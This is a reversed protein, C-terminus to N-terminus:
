RGLAKRVAAALHEAQFPKLVFGAMGEDLLAQAAGEAAGGTSLIARLAPNLGRLARFCERGGMEPMMMDIIVLDLTPALRRYLAVAERGDAATVVVYGMAILMRALVSRVLEEDDVVMIRVPSAAGPPPSASPDDESDDAERRARTPSSTPVIADGPAPTEEPTPDPAKAPAVEAALPLFIRFTAGAGVASEVEVWGGHHRVIGYVMALGMGTGKGRPKTTFFPEFIRSHLDPPIGIGTDRVITLVYRGPEAWAPRPGDTDTRQIIETSFTMRGGDPMADRANMALNLIVQEMQAPDGLIRAPDASPRMELQIRPDFTRALLSVSTEIAMNLDVVTVQHKGRRAFGLLQGTLHAARRAANEIIDATERVDAPSDATDKLLGANCLIGTMLNNFDHAIGGALQGVAEMKHAERLEEEMRVQDTVDQYMALVAPRGEWDTRFSQIEVCGISGDPRVIHYQGGDTGGSVVSDFRRRARERDDPLAFEGVRLGVFEEPKRRYIHAFAENVKVYLGDALVSIGLVNQEFLLRYNEESQRLAEAARHRETTDTIISLCCPRGRFTLPTNSFDVMYTSGDQRAMPFDNVFITEGHLLRQRYAEILGERGKVLQIDYISLAMMEAESVGTMRCMASNTSVPRLNELDTVLIGHPTEDFVARLEQERDRLAEEAAKRASIDRIATLLCDRGDLMTRTSNVEVWFRRGDKHRALWEYSATKGKAVARQLERRRKYSYPGDTVARRAANLADLEDPGYGYLQTVRQNIALVDGTEVSQVFLADNVGHFITQYTAELQRLALEALRQETIDRGAAQFEIVRGDADFIGRNIWEYWRRDGSSLIVEHVNRVVPNTPTIAALRDRTAQHAEPAMWKYISQGIIQDAPVGMFRSCAENIFTITGDPLFRDIIETECDVVARYRAESERLAQEARKRDTIDRCLSVIRVGDVSPVVTANIEVPTIGGRPDIYDLDLNRVSGHELCRRVEDANRDRDHAATWQTVSRGLIDALKERGTLRVYEANADLVCGEVDIIVCGTDTTEILARHKEESERLAREAQRRATINRVAGRIGVIRDGDLMHRPIIEITERGGDANSYSVELREVTEGRMARQFKTRLGERDEPVVIDWPHLQALQEATARAGKMISNNVFTFRGEVDLSFIGDETNDVLDRYKRESERLSEEVRKRDTIDQSLGQVAVVRGDTRILRPRVEITLKRGDRAFYSFEFSPIEEGQALREYLRAVRAAEDPTLIDSQNIHMFHEAPIGSRNVITRNVFQYRGQLDVVFLGDNMNDVLERYREESQRLSEEALRRGTIDRAIGVVSRVEGRVDKIPVLTTNFWRRGIPFEVAEEDATVPLGTDFVHQVVGWQRNAVAPPFVEHMTRGILDEPRGRFHRGAAANVSQFRGDRGFVFIPDEASEVLAKYRDQTERLIRGAQDEAGAVGLHVMALTDGGSQVIAGSVHVTLPAAGPRTILSVEHPPILRAGDAQPPAASEPAAPPSLELAGPIVDQLPLGALEAAPRGLIAAGASNVHLIAGDEVRAVVLADAVADLLALFSSPALVERPPRKLDSKRSKKM